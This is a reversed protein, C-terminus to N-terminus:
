QDDRVPASAPRWLSGVLLGVVLGVLHGGNVALPADPLAAALNWVVDLLSTIGVVAALTDLETLTHRFRIGRALAFGGLAYGLGSIGYFAVNPEPSFQLLVLYGAALSATAATVVFAWYGGPSFHREQPALVVLVLLNSLLHLPGRHLFLSLLYVSRGGELYLLATFSRVSPLGTLTAGAVQLIFVVVTVFALTLTTQTHATRYQRALTGAFERLDDSSATAEDGDM